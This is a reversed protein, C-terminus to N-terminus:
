DVGKGDGTDTRGGGGPGEVSTMRGVGNSRGRGVIKAM